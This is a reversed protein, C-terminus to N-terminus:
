KLLIKGPIQRCDMRCLAHRTYELRDPTRDFLERGGPERVRRVVFIALLLLVFFLTFLVNRSRM